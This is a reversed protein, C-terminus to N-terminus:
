RSLDPFCCLIRTVQDVALARRADPVARQALNQRPETVPAEHGCGYVVAFLAVHSITRM